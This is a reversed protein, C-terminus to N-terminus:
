LMRHCTSLRRSARQSGTFSIKDIKPHNSLPGGADPGLGNVVNVAGPPAGAETCLEGFLICSLPSLESPKLVVTCGAALAPIVKWVAMLMPYNWPTIAAVVGIPELVITTTFDGGTGNEIVENQHADRQEALEAFHACCAIADGMDALSERLPKGQDLSDLRALEEKRSEILTGLKRLVQARQAGTSAYGWHPSHLCAVAAEVAATFPLGILPPSSVFPPVVMLIKLLPLLSLLSSRGTQLISQISHEAV